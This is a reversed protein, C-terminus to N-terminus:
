NDLAKKKDEQPPLIIENTDYYNFYPRGDMILHSIRKHEGNELSERYNFLQLYVVGKIKTKSCELIFDSQGRLRRAVSTFDQSAWFLTLGRKRLQRTFLTIHQVKKNFFDYADAEVYAEDILVLADKLEEPFKALDRFSIHTYPIDYLTFNAFIKIGNDSALKAIVVMTLSKGDGREGLISFINHEFPNTEINLM